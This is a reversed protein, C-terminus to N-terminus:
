MWFCSVSFHMGTFILVDFYFHLKMLLKNQLELNGDLGVGAVFNDVGRLALADAGLAVAKAELNARLNQAVQLERNHGGFRGDVAVIGDGVEARLGNLARHVDVGGSDSDGLRLVLEQATAIIKVLVDDLVQSADAAHGDRRIEDARGDLLHFLREGVLATSKVHEGSEGRESIKALAFVLLEGAAKSLFNFVVHVLSVLAQHSVTKSITRVRKETSALGDSFESQSGGDDLNKALGLVRERVGAFHLQAFREVPDVRALGTVTAEVEGVTVDGEPGEDELLGVLDSRVDGRRQEFSAVLSGVEGDGIGDLADVTEGCSFFFLGVQAVGHEGVEVDETAFLNAGLSEEGLKAILLFGTLLSESVSKQRALSEFFQVGGLLVSLKKKGSRIDPLRGDAGARKDLDPRVEGGLSIELELELVVLVLNQAVVSGVGQLFGGILDGDFSLAASKELHFARVDVGLGLLVVELDSDLSEVLTEVSAM